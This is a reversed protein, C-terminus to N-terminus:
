RPLLPSGSRRRARILVAEGRLALRSRTSSKSVAAERCLDNWHVHRLALASDHANGHVLIWARVGGDFLERRQLRREFFVPRNGGAICRPDVVAGRSQHDGARLVRPLGAAIRKSPYQREGHRADVRLDHADSRNARNSNYSQAPSRSSWISGELRVLTRPATPPRRGRAQDRIRLFHVHVATGDRETMRNTRATGAHQRRETRASPSFIASPMADSHMPPPMPMAVGNLGEVIHGTRSFGSAVGPRSFGSAM